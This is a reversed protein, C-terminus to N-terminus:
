EFTARQNERRRAALITAIAWRALVNVGCYAKKSAINVTCM